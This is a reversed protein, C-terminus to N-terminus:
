YSAEITKLQNEGGPFKLEQFLDLQPNMTQLDELVSDDVVSQVEKLQQIFSTTSLVEM